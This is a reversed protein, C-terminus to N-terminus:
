PSGEPSDVNKSVDVKSSGDLLSGGRDRNEEALARNADSENKLREELWRVGMWFGDACAQAGQQKVDIPSNMLRETVYHAAGKFAAETLIDDPLRM